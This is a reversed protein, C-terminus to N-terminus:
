FDFGVTFYLSRNKLPKYFTDMIYDEVDNYSKANNERFGHDYSVGLHCKKVVLDLGFSLGADFRKLDSKAAYNQDQSSGPGDPKEGSLPYIKQISDYKKGDIEFHMIQSESAHLAFALYPGVNFNLHTNQNFNLRFQPQIPIELYGIREILTFDEDFSESALDAVIREGKMVYKLEVNLHLSELVPFDWAFGAAFGPLLRTSVKAEDGMFLFAYLDPKQNMNSLTLSEKIGFKVGSTDRAGSVVKASASLTSILMLMFVLLKKM